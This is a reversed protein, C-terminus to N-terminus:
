GSPPRGDEKQAPAVGPSPFFIHSDIYMRSMIRRSFHSTPSHTQQIFRRLVPPYLILHGTLEPLKAMGYIVACDVIPGTLLVHQSFDHCLAIGMGHVQIHADMKVSSGSIPFSVSFRCACFHIRVICGPNGSLGGDADTCGNGPQSEFVASYFRTFRQIYQFM